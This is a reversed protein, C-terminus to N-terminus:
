AYLEPVERVLLPSIFTGGRGSIGIQFMRNLGAGRLKGKILSIPIQTSTTASSVQLSILYSCSCKLVLLWCRLVALGVLTKYLCVHVVLPTLCAVRAARRRVTFYFLLADITARASARRTQGAHAALLTPQVSQARKYVCM